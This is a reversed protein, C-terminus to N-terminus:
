APARYGPFFTDNVSRSAAAGAAENRRYSLVAYSEEDVIWRWVRFKHVIDSFGRKFHYLSDQKAGVGGGLHFTRMGRSVGWLRVTDFMLKSPTQKLFEEATGGLHYQIVGNCSSFLGACIVTEGSRCVFLNMDFDTATVLRDFYEDSFLYSEAADVRQMTQAYLKRFAAFDGSSESIECIVGQRKLKNIDRRHNSRYRRRQADEPERLDISITKGMVNCSGLGRLVKEGALLPHLRSFVSVIGKDRLVDTLSKRFSDIETAKDYEGFSMPGSYGYVSTADTYEVDGIRGRRILLPLAIASHAGEYRFLCAQDGTSDAVLAHYDYTHYFDYDSFTRLADRWGDADTM